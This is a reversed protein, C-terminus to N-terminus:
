CRQFIQILSSRHRMYRLLERKNMATLQTREQRVDATLTRGINDRHGLSCIVMRLPMFIMAQAAMWLLKTMREWARRRLYTKAAARRDRYDM